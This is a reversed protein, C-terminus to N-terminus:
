TVGVPLRVLEDVRLVAPQARLRVVVDDVDGDAAGPPFALLVLAADRVRRHAVARRVTIGDHGKVSRTVDEVELRRALRGDYAKGLAEEENPNKTTEDSM